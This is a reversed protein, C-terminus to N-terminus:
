VAGLPVLGPCAGTKRALVVQYGRFIPVVKLLPLSAIGFLNRPYNYQKLEHQRVAFGSASLFSRVERRSYERVHGMHGIARLKGFEQVPDNFGRGLLFKVVNKIFYLNPTTLLLQGGPKLVRNAESLALLPDVRLHELIENFLVLDFSGDGFPLHQREIDCAVVNPRRRTLLPAADFPHLDASVVSYGLDKLLCTFFFPYGGLELIRGSDHSRSISALDSVYRRRHSLFYMTEGPLSYRHERVLEDCLSAIKPGSVKDAPDGQLEM